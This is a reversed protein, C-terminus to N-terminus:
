AYNSIPNLKHNEDAIENNKIIGYNSCTSIFLVKDIGKNNLFNLCNILGKENIQNTENPYKKSLPDGVIAALIVVDTINKLSTELDKKNCLDGYFFSYNKKNKYNEIAFNNDFLLKDLNSVETNKDILRKILVSGIYGAGGIILVKKM